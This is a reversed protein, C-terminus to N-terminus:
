LFLSFITPMSKAHQHAFVSETASPKILLTNLIFFNTVPISAPATISPPIEPAAL